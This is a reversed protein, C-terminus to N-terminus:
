CNTPLEDNITEEVLDCEKASKKWLINRRRAMNQALETHLPHEAQAQTIAVASAREVFAIAALAASIFLNTRM